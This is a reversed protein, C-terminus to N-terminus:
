RIFSTIFYEYILLILIGTKFTFSQQKYGPILFSDIENMFIEIEDEYVYM